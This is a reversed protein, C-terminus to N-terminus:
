DLALSSALWYRPHWGIPVRILLCTPFGSILLYTSWRRTTTTTSWPSFLTAPALSSHDPPRVIRTNPPKLTTTPNLVDAPRPHERHPDPSQAPLSTLMGTTQDTLSTEKRYDKRLMPTLRQYNTLILPEAETLPVRQSNDQQERGPTM